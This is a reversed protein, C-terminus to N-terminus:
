REPTTPRAPVPRVPSEIRTDGAPSGLQRELATFAAIIERAEFVQRRRRGARMPQLIDADVLRQVAAMTAPTSRGIHKSAAAITTVPAGPLMELLRRAAADSRMPGLRERWAQQITAIREEFAAADSVSRTCAASFTGIWRSIGDVVLPSNPDGINRTGNLGDVYDRARTALVLSIPPIVSKVLGRRRLIMHILARGVRGNGDAFPHITEFQAHAVAAQVIAPLSDENCFACLDDFLRKLFEPPPPIFDAGIPSHGNSGIWNQETRLKGGHAHLTTPALLRRHTDLLLTSTIPRAADVSEIALVMADINALVEAATDDEVPQDAARAVDAALLRRAGVILGEMRSSAVSEARLLVRALAETNALAAKTENLEAIAREADAADAVDDGRLLFSRGV